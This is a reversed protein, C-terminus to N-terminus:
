THLNPALPSHWAMNNKPLAATNLETVETRLETVEKEMKEIKYFMAKIMKEIETPYEGPKLNEVEREELHLVIDELKSLVLKKAAFPQGSTHQKNHIAIAERTLM